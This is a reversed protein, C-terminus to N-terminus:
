RSAREILATIEAEVAERDWRGAACEILDSITLIHPRDYGSLAELTDRSLARLLRRRRAMVREASRDLPPANM